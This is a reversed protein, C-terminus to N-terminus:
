LINRTSFGARSILDIDAATKRTETKAFNAKKFVAYKIAALCVRKALTRM